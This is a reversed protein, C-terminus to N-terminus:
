ERTRMFSCLGSLDDEFCTSAILYLQMSHAKGNKERTGPPIVGWSQGEWYPINGKHDIVIHCTEGRAKPGVIRKTSVVSGVLSANNKYVNIPIKSQDWYSIAELFKQKKKTRKRLVKRLLTQFLVFTM